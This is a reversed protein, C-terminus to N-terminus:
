QWPRIHREVFHVIDEAAESRVHRHQAKKMKEQIEPSNLLKVGVKALALPSHAYMCMGHSAFFKRNETECGPIPFTHVLSKGAVATETSTLGGPKTYVIDAAAMYLPMQDTYGIVSVTEDEAFRKELQERIKENNGCIVALESEEGNRKRVERALKELNGAGM